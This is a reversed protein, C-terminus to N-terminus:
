SKPKKNFKAKLLHYIAPGITIVMVLLIVILIYKDINKVKEGIIRGLIYGLMTVGTGWTAVGAANYIAFKKRDMNTTGSVVPVFTRIVPVFRALLVTKVGHKEYFDEAKKLQDPHFFASEEKRFLKRGARKGIEYGTNDGLIGSLIVVIILWGLPLKGISAFYGASLLLTDGPLFFGALLGGEAFIIGGVALLGGSKILSEVSIGFMTGIM